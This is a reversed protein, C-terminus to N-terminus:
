LYLNKSWADDDRHTLEHLLSLTFPTMLLNRGGRWELFLRGFLAVKSLRRLGCRGDDKEM